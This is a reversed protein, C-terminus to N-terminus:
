TAPNSKVKSFTDKALQTVKGSAKDLEELGDNVVKGITEKAKDVTSHVDDMFKAKDEESSAFYAGVAAGVLLGVGLGIFLSSTKM